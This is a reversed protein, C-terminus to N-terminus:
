KEGTSIQKIENLKKKLETNEQELENNRTCYWDREKQLNDAENVYPAIVDDIADNLEYWKQKTESEWQHYEFADREHIDNYHKAEYIQYIFGEVIALVKKM